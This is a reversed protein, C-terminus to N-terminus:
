RRARDTRRQPSPSRSRSRSYSRGSGNRDASSSRRRPRSSEDQVDRRIHAVSSKMRHMVGDDSDEESSSDDDSSRSASSRRPVADQDTQEEAGDRSVPSPSRRTDDRSRSHKDGDSDSSSSSSRTTREPDRTGSPSSHEDKLPSNLDVVAENEAAMKREKQEAVSTTSRFGTLY